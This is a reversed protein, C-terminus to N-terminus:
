VHARGIEEGRVVVDIFPFAELTGLDVATAQPGGFVVVADPHARKVERALRVTLPYSNCITGFGYVDANLDELARAARSFFDCASSDSGVSEYFLRNIDFVQCTIEKRELVAALSLIGLPPYDANLRHAEDRSTVAGEFETVTPASILCVM